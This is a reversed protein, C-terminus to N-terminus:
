RSLTAKRQPGVSVMTVPVGASKEVYGIYDQAEQPLDEWSRAGSIDAAWGALEEYVPRSDYLVRQQRPFEDFRGDGTEYAVCVKLLDFESLVDLKTLAIDTLGNIRTAYRLAVIDLWGCRRRRGTVTGYEGGVQVMKEGIEDTLETPFPGSGVRSIYAKAVGVVRNIATPGVGSGTAAGGATPNSSTVFPYTGHDVDLLTAQAGEFLVYKGQSLADFILLSTDAVHPALQEAFGLYEDAIAKADLAPQGIHRDRLSIFDRM